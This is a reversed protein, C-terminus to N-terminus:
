VAAINMAVPGNFSFGINFKVRLGTRQRSWEDPHNDSKHFFVWDASGDRIVFGYAYEIRAIIGFFTRKEGREGIFDRVQRRLDFSIPVKRLRM